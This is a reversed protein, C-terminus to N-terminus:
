LITDATFISARQAKEWTGKQPKFIQKIFGILMCGNMFVFYFPAFFLLSKKGSKYMLWGICAMTYFLVQLIFLLQYLPSTNCYFVLVCNILFLIPLSIPSVLWRIVRRSFFQFNLMWNTASPFIGLRAVAQAAGSAIRIKRKREEALNISPAEIAYANKEYTITYGQKCISIALMLDDLITDEPLPYFLQTRMSFLEGAAAVVTYLDSDLQKMASEYQWYLGEGIGIINQSSPVMVKKEGAVGGVKENAYHKVMERIANTNLLTNADSFVVIPQQVFTMARNIASMKGKRENQHLHLIQPFEKLMNASADTSGDTVIIIQVLNSPYDLTLTNVVKDKLAIGENYAPIIIAISPLDSQLSVAKPAKFISQIFGMFWALIGYGLYAYVLLAVLIWFILTYYGM